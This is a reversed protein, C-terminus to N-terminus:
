KGASGTPPPPTAPAANPAVPASPIEQATGAPAAPTEQPKLSADEYTIKAQSKLDTLLKNRIEGQQKFMIGQKASDFPEVEVGRTVVIIHYGDSTKIPASVEGVKMSFAKEVLPDYGRRSLRPETKAVDGLDGGNAKTIPDESAEKAVTAFDEKNKLREEVKNALALADSDSHGDTAPPKIGKAVPGAPPAGKTKILIHSMRLKEFDSKHDDYYKQADTELQKEVYSQAVIVRRYLDAKEKVQPDRDLGNKAAAQYFLEQEIINDIIQKRGMPNNLQARIRPNVTGLFDLDGETITKGNITLLEKGPRNSSCGVVLTCAAIILLSKRIM